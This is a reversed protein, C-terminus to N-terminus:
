RYIERLAVHYDVSGVEEFEDRQLLANSIFLRSKHVAKSNTAEM